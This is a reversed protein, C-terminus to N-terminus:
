EASGLTISGREQLKLLFEMAVVVGLLSVGILALNVLHYISLLGLATSVGLTIWIRTRAGFIKNRWCGYLLPLFLLSALQVSWDLSAGIATVTLSRATKPASFGRSAAVQNGEPILGDFPGRQALIRQHPPLMLTWAEKESSLSVVPLNYTRRSLYHLGDLKEQYHFRVPFGETNTILKILFEGSEGETVVPTEIRGNVFLDLFSAGSPLTVRLFQERVNHVMLNATTVSTGDISVQTQYTATSISAPPLEQKHHRKLNLNLVPPQADTWVYSYAKLIPHSTRVVLAQPLEAPEESTLGLATSPTVETASRSEIAIRGRDVDAGLLHIFPVAAEAFDQALLQEYALEFRISGELEQTFEIEVIQHDPHAVVRHDRLSPATVSLVQLGLPLSLQLLSVRGAKIDVVGEVSGLLGVEGVSVVQNLTTNYRGEVRQPATQSLHLVPPKEAYKFGFTLKGPLNSILETPFASEGIRTLTSEEAVRLAADRTGILAVAGRNRSAQPITLLPLPRDSGVPLPMDYKVAVNAEQELRRDLYATITQVGSSDRESRWDIVTGTSPQITDVEAELPLTFALTNLGGQRIALDIRAHGVVVSEECHFRHWVAATMAVEKEEQAPLAERWSIEISPTQPLSATLTTVGDRISQTVGGSPTITVEQNGPIAVTVSRTAGNILPVELSPSGEKSSVPVDFDLALRHSGRGSVVAHVMGDRSVLPVPASSSTVRRLAVSDAVLPVNITEDRFLDVSITSTWSSGFAGPATRSVTGALDVHGVSWSAGSSRSYRLHIADTAPLHTTLSTIRESNSVQLDLSPAVSPIGLEKPSRLSLVMAERHISPLTFDLLDGITQGDVEIVFVIPHSGTTTLIIGADGHSRAVASTAEKVMLSRITTHQPVLPVFLAKNSYSQITTRYTVTATIREDRQTIVAEATVPQFAFLPTQPRNREAIQSIDSLPLSVSPETEANATAIASLVVLVPLLRTGIRFAWGKFRRLLNMSAVLIQIMLPVGRM